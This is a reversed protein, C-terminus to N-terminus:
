ASKAQPNDVRFGANMLTEVNNIAAPPAQLAKLRSLTDDRGSLREMVLGGLVVFAGRDVRLVGNEWRSLTGRDVGFLAALQPGRFDLATRMFRFAAPTPRGMRVLEAAVQLEFAKAADPDVVAHRCASCTRAELTAAFTDLKQRMRRAVAEDRVGGQEGGIASM